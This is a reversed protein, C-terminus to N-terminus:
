SLIVRVHTLTPTGKPLGLTIVDTHYTGKPLSPSGTKTCRPTGHVECEQYVTMVTVRFRNAGPKLKVSPACAVAAVVPTFPTTKNAL